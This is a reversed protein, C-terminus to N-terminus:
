GMQRPALSPMMKHLRSRRVDREYLHERQNADHEVSELMVRDHELVVWHRSELRNGYLFRRVDRQWGPVRRCRWFFM